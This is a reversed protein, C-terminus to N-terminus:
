HRRITMNCRAWMEEHFKFANETILRETFGAKLYCNKAKTNSSFVNLQASDAGTSFAHTLALSLMKRGYGKGRFKPSLIIFKFKGERNNPNLSYCFFGIILGEETTAVFPTNGKSKLIINEFIEKKLPYPLLGACWLAHEREDTVWTKIEDFDSNPVYPRIKM